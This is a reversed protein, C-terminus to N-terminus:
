SPSMTLPFMYQKNGITCQLHTLSASLLSSTYSSPFVFSDTNTDVLGTRADGGLSNNVSPHLQWAVTAHLEPPDYYLPAGWGCLLRNVRSLLALLLSYIARSRALSSSVGADIEVDGDDDDNKDECTPYVLMALFRRTKEENEYVKMRRLVISSPSSSSSSPVSSAFTEVFERMMDGLERIFPQIQVYKLTFTRSLSIHLCSSAPIPSSSTSNSSSHHHWTSTPSISGHSSEMGKIANEIIDRFSQNMTTTTQHHKEKMHNDIVIPLFIHTPWNGEVHAFSRIRGDHSSVSVLSPVPPSPSPSPSSASMSHTNDADITRKRRKEERAAAKEEASRHKRKRKLLTADLETSSQVQTSDNGNQKLEVQEDEDSRYQAHLAAIADMAGGTCLASHPLPSGCGLTLAQM